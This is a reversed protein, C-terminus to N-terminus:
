QAVLCHSEQTDLEVIFRKVLVSDAVDVWGDLNADAARFAHIDDELNVMGVVHQEILVADGIEVIGNLNADGHCYHIICEPATDNLIDGASNVAIVYYWFAKFGVAGEDLFYNETILETESSIQIWDVPTTVARFVVYGARDPHEFHEWSVRITAYSTGM